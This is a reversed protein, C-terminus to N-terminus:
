TPFCNNIAIRNEYRQHNSREVRSKLNNLNSLSKHCNLCLALCSSYKSEAKPEAIASCRLLNETNLSNSCNYFLCNDRYAPHCCTTPGDYTLRDGVSLTSDPRINVAQEQGLLSFRLSLREASRKSLRRSRQRSIVAKQSTQESGGQRVVDAFAAAAGPYHNRLDGVFALTERFWGQTGYPVNDRHVSLYLEM